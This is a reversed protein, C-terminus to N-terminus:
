LRALRSSKALKNVCECWRMGEVYLRDCPRAETEGSRVGISRGKEEDKNKGAIEGSMSWAAVITIKATTRHWEGCGVDAGDTEIQMGNTSIAVCDELM